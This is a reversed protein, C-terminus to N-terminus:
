KETAPAIPVEISVGQPAAQSPDFPPDAVLVGRLMSESSEAYPHVPLICRISDVGIDYRHPKHSAILGNSNFFYLSRLSALQRRTSEGAPTLILEIGIQSRTAAVNWDKL